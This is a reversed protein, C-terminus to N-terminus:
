AAAVVAEVESSTLRWRQEHGTCELQGVVENKFAMYEALAVKEDDTYDLLLALALQASGCGSYEM